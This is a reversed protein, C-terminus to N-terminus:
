QLGGLIDDIKKAIDEINQTADIGILKGQKAYYDILPQTHTYYTVLRGKVSEENDDERIFLSSGCEDCTNEVKPPNFKIHYSKGCHPCSRRGSIREMVVRDDLEFNIVCDMKKSLREFLEDLMIAQEVSRPFGDFLIGEDSSLNSIFTEIVRMILDNEVLMGKNITERIHQGEPDNPDDIKRRLLEGISLHAVKYKKSVLEAQTGKGSSPVGLFMINM